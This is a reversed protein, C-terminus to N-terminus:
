VRVSVKKFPIERHGTTRCPLVRIQCAVLREDKFETLTRTTEQYTERPSFIHVTAVFPRWEHSPEQRPGSVERHRDIENQSDDASNGSEDVANLLGAMM